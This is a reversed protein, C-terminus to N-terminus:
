VPYRLDRWIAWKVNGDALTTFGYSHKIMYSAVVGPELPIMASLEDVIEQTSKNDEALEEGLESKGPLNHRSCFYADLVMIQNKQNENQSDDSKDFWKNKM